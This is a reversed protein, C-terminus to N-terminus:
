RSEYGSKRLVEYAVTEISKENIFELDAFIDAKFSTQRNFKTSPKMIISTM